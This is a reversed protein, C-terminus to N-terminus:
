SPARERASERTRSKPGPGRMYHKEPRYGDARLWNLGLVRRMAQYIRAIRGFRRPHQPQSPM